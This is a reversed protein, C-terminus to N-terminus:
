NILLVGKEVVERRERAGVIWSLVCLLVVGCQVVFMILFYTSYCQMGYCQHTHPDAYRDYLYGSLSDFAMPGFAPALAFFGYLHMFALGVSQADKLVKGPQCVDFIAMWLGSYAFANLGSLIYMFLASNWLWGILSEVAFTASFIVLSCDTRWHPSSPGLWVTFVLKGLLQVLAFIIFQYTVQQDSSGLALAMNGQNNYFNVGCGFQLFLAVLVLWSRISSFLTGLKVRLSTSPASAAPVEPQATDTASASLLSQKEPNKSHRCLALMWPGFWYLVVVTCVLNMLACTLFVVGLKGSLNKGDTDLFAYLIAAVSAVLNNMTFFVRYAWQAVTPRSALDEFCLKICASEESCVAIGMLGFCFCMLAFNHPVTRVAVWATFWAATSAVRCILVLPYPFKDGIPGM